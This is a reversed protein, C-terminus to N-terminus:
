KNSWPPLPFPFFPIWTVTLVAGYKRERVEELAKEGGGEWECQMVKMGKSWGGIEGGGKGYKKDRGTMFRFYSNTRSLKAIGLQSRGYSVHQLFSNANCMTAEWYNVNQTKNKNHHPCHPFLPAVTCLAAWVCWCMCACASFFFDEQANKGRWNTMCRTFYEPTNISGFKSNNLIKRRRSVTYKAM